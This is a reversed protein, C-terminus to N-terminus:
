RMMAFCTGFGIVVIIIPVLMLTLFLKKSENSFILGFLGVLFMGVLISVIFSLGDM